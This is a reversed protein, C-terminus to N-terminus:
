LRTLAKEMLARSKNMKTEDNDAGGISLYVITDKKLVHLVSTLGTSWYAEDGLGDIKKPPTKGKKGSEGGEKGQGSAGEEPNYRGFIEQWFDKPTRKGDGEPKSQTVMLSVSKVFDEAIYVCQSVRFAGESRANSKTENISSGQISQIEEKTILACADLKAPASEQGGGEPVASPKKCGGAVLTALGFFCVLLNRSVKRGTKGTM